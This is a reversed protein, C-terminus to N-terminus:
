ACRKLSHCPLLMEWSLATMKDTEWGPIKIAFRSSGFRAHIIVFQGEWTPGALLSRIEWKHPPLPHFSAYLVPPCAPFFIFFDVAWNYQASTFCSRSCNEWQPITLWSTSKQSTACSGGDVCMTCPLKLQSVESNSLDLLWLCYYIDIYLSPTWLTPEWLDMKRPFRLTRNGPQHARVQQALHQRKLHQYSRTALWQQTYDSTNRWRTIWIQRNNDFVKYNMGRKCLVLRTYRRHTHLYPDHTSVKSSRFNNRATNTVTGPTTSPKCNTM